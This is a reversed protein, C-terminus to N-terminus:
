LLVNDECCQRCLVVADEASLVSALAPEGVMLDVLADPDTSPNPEV